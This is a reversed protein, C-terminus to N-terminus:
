ARSVGRAGRAAALADRRREHALAPARRADCGRAPPPAGRPADPYHEASVDVLAGRLRVRAGEGARDRDGGRGARLQSDQNAVRRLGPVSREERPRRSVCRLREDGGLAHAGGRRSAARKSSACRASRGFAVCAGRDTFRFLEVPPGSRTARPPDEDERLSGLLEHAFSAIEQSSRYSVRLTELADGQVGLEELFRSWSTFGNHPQVHQQTDGALTLSRREDLCDILVQVELPSFDQVEDIAVHRYRLPGKRGRLPGVRLQWARLLLADDEPDLEAEIEADGELWAFLEENRRRCYDAFQDFAASRYAGPTRREACEGLAPLAAPGTRV